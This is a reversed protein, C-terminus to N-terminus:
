RVIKIVYVHRALPKFKDLIKGNKVKVKRDEFKVEASEAYDFEAPLTIEVDASRDNDSNLAIIYIKDGLKRTMFKVASDTIAANSTKELSFIVDELELLEKNVNM